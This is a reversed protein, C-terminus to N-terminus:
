SVSEEAKKTARKQIITFICILLMLLVALAAGRGYLFYNFTYKYASYALTETSGAPGGNTLAIVQDFAALTFIVTLTLAEALAPALLPFTVKTFKKWRGAGDVACAEHVDESISELGALYIVMCLGTYQWVMVLIIMATAWGPEALWARPEVGFLGSLFQNMPGKYSLIYQWVYGTALYSLAYPIFFLARYVNRLKFKVQLWLALLLGLINAIIVVSISIIITNVVAGSMKPDKFIAIYNEFLTFNAKFGLGNWDTFSYFIGIISPVIRLLIILVAGPVLFWWSVHRVELPGKLTSYKKPKMGEQKKEKAM